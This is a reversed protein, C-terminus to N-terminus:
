VGARDADCPRPRYVRNMVDEYIAAPIFERVDRGEAAIQKVMTSSLYM